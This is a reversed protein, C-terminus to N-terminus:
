PLTQRAIAVIKVNRRTLRVLSAAAMFRVPEKDDQLMEQLKPIVGKRPYNGLAKAAAARVVWNKDGLADELEHISDPSNDSALLTACLTRTPASNDKAFAEIVSVGMAFPGLRAGAAENVGLLALAAPNHLKKKAANISGRVVGPRAHREGFLHRM